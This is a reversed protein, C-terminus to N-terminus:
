WCVESQDHAAQQAKSMSTDCARYFWQVLMRPTGGDKDNQFISLIRCIFQPGHPDPNKLYVCDGVEFVEEKVIFREFFTKGGHKASPPGDLQPVTKKVLAVVKKRRSSMNDCNDTM